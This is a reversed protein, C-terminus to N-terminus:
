LLGCAVGLLQLAVEGDQGEDSESGRGGNGPGSQTQADHGLDIGAARAGDDVAEDQDREQLGEQASGEALEDRAVRGLAAHVVPDGGHRGLLHHGEETEHGPPKRAKATLSAGPGLIVSRSLESILGWPDERCGRRVQDVRLGQRREDSQVVRVQLQLRPLGKDDVLAEVQRRRSHDHEAVADDRRQVLEREEVQLEAPEGDQNGDDGARGGVLAGLEDELGPDVVRAPLVLDDAENCPKDIREVAQPSQIPDRVNSLLHWIYSVQKIVM